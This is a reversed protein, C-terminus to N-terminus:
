YAREARDRRFHPGSVGFPNGVLTRGEHQLWLYLFVVSICLFHANEQIKELDGVQNQHMFMAFCSGFVMAFLIGGVIRENTTGLGHLGESYSTMSEGVGHTLFASSTSM